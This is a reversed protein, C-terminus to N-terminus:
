PKVEEHESVRNKSYLGGAVLYRNACPFELFSAPRNLLPPVPTCFNLKSALWGCAM